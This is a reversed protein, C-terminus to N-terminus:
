ARTVAVPLHDIPRLRDSSCSAAPPLGSVPKRRGPHRDFRPMSSWPVAANGRRRALETFSMLANPPEVLPPATVFTGRGQVAEIIGEAELAALARRVTARSVGMQESIVREPPLRGDPSLTGAAIQGAIENYIRLYLPERIRAETRPMDFM